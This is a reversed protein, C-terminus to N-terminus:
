GKVLKFLIQKREREQIDQNQSLIKEKAKIKQGDAKHRLKEQSDKDYNNEKYVKEKDFNSDSLWYHVKATEEM